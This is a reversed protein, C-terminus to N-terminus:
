HRHRALRLSGHRRVGESLSAMAPVLESTVLGAQDTLEDVIEFSRAIREPSDVLITVIPVRRRLQL